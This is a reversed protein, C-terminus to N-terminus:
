TRMNICHRFFIFMYNDILGPHRPPPLLNDLISNYLIITVRKTKITWKLPYKLPKSVLNNFKLLTACIIISDAVAKATLPNRSM